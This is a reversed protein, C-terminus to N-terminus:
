TGERYARATPRTALYGNIGATTTDMVKHVKAQLTGLWAHEVQLVDEDVQATRLAQRVCAEALHSADVQDVGHATMFVTIGVRFEQERGHRKQVGLLDGMTTDYLDALADLELASVARVDREMDSVATRPIGTVDAVKQQSLGAAKRAAALNEALSM